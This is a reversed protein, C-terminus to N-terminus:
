WIFEWSVKTKHTLSKLARPVYLSILDTYQLLLDAEKKAKQQGVVCNEDVSLWPSILESTNLFVDCSTEPDRIVLIDFFAARLCLSM